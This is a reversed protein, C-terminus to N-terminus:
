TKWMSGAKGVCGEVGKKAVANKLIRFSEAGSM